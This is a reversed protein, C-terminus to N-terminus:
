LTKVHYSILIPHKLQLRFGYLSPFSFMLFFVLVLLHFPEAQLNPHIIQFPHLFVIFLEVLYISPNYFASSHVLQVYKNKFTWM